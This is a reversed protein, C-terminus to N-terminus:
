SQAGATPKTHKATPWEKGTRLVQIITGLNPNYIQFPIKNAAETQDRRFKSELRPSPEFHLTRTWHPPNNEVDLYGIIDVLGAYTKQLSNTFNLRRRTPEGDVRVVEDWAVFIVNINKAQAIDRWRRTFKLITATNEGWNQIEPKKDPGIISAMNVTQLESLNDWSITKWPPSPDREIASTFAEATNWDHIPMVDIDTRHAIVRTGGEADCILMPAGEPVDAATASLTTKGAGAPGYLTIFTGWSVSALNSKVSHFRKYKSFPDAMAGQTHEQESEEPTPEGSAEQAGLDDALHESAAYEAESEQTTPRPRLIVRPQIRTPETM